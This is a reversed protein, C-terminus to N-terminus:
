TICAGKQSARLELKTFTVSKVNGFNLYRINVSDINKGHQEQELSHPEEDQRVKHVSRSYKPLIKGQQQGQM